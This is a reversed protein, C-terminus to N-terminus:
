PLAEITKQILDAAATSLEPHLTCIILGSRSRWARVLKLQISPALTDYFRDCDAKSKCLTIMGAFAKGQELVNFTKEDKYQSEIAQDSQSRPAQDDIALGTMKLQDIVQQATEIPQTNPRTMDQPSTNTGCATLTFLMISVIILYRM